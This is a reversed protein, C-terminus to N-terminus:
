KLILVFINKGSHVYLLQTTGYMCQINDPIIKYKDTQPREYLKAWCCNGFLCIYLLNNCYSTSEENVPLRGNKHGAQGM